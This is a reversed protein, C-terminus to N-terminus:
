AGGSGRSRLEAQLKAIEQQAEGYRHQLGNNQRRQEEIIGNLRQVDSWLQVNEQRLVRYQEAGARYRRLLDDYGQRLNVAYQRLREHADARNEARVAQVINGVVSGLAVVGVLDPSPRRTRRRIRATRPRM